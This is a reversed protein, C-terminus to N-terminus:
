YFIIFFHFVKTLFLSFLIIEQKMVFCDSMFLKYKYYLTIQFIIVQSPQIRLQLIHSWKLKKFCTELNAAVFYLVTEIKTRIHCFPRLNQPLLNHYMEFKTMVHCFPRLNQPHMIHSQGNQNKVKHPLVTGYKTTASKLNQQSMAFHELKTSLFYPVM